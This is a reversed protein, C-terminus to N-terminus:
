KNVCYNNEEKVSGVVNYCSKKCKLPFSHFSISHRNKNIQKVRLLQAPWLSCFCDFKWCCFWCCCCCCIFISLLKFAFFHACQMENLLYQSMLYCRPKKRSFLWNKIKETKTQVSSTYVSRSPYTCQVYNKARVFVSFM